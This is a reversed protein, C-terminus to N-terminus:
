FYLLIFLYQNNLILSSEIMVFNKRGITFLRIAQETYNNDMPVNGDSLFRRLYEEQNISYLPIIDTYFIFIIAQFLVYYQRRIVYVIYHYYLISLFAPPNIAFTDILISSLKFFCASSRKLSKPIFRVVANVIKTFCAM